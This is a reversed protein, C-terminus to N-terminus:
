SRGNDKQLEDNRREWHNDATTCGDCPYEDWGKISYKCTDCSTRHMEEKLADADILRM